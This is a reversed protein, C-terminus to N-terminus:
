ALTSTISKVGSTTSITLTLTSGSSLTAKYTGDPLGAAQLITLGEGTRLLEAQDTTLSGSGGGGAPANKLSDVTYTFNSGSATLMTSVKDTVTKISTISTNDPATYGVLSSSVVRGSSDVVISRNEISFVGVNIGVVSTGGVSSSGSLRVTYDSGPTFTTTDVSTDIVVRHRGTTSGTDVLLTVGGSPTVDVGDKAVTIAGSTLTTPVGASSITNFPIRITKTRLIDGYYKSM